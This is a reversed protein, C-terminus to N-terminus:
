NNEEVEDEAAAAAAAAAAAVTAAKQLSHPRIRQNSGDNKSAAKWQHKFDLVM